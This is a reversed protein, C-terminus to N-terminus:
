KKQLKVPYDGGPLKVTVDTPEAFASVDIATAVACVETGFNGEGTQAKITAAQEENMIVNVGDCEVVTTTQAVATGYGFLIALGAAGLIELKMVEERQPHQALQRIKHEVGM